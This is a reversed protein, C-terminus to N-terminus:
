TAVMVVAWKQEWHAAKVSATWGAWRDAMREALYAVMMAASCAVSHLAMLDAWRQETQEASRVVLSVAKLAVMKAVTAAAMQAASHVARTEAWYAVLHDAM